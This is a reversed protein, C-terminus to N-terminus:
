GSRRGGDGGGGRRGFGRTQVKSVDFPKGTLKKLSEKQDDSLVDMAKDMM